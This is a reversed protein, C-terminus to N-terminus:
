EGVSFQSYLECSSTLSRRAASDLDAALERRAAKAEAQQHGGLPGQPQSGRCLPPSGPRCRDLETVASVSLRDGNCTAGLGRAGAFCEGSLPPHVVGVVPEGRFVRAISVAFEPIGAVFEKTGDLPDIVWVFDRGQRARSDRSEESLVPDEPFASRLVELIARNAELDAQTVPNDEAKDWSERDGASHRAIIEGAALAAERAVALAREQSEM